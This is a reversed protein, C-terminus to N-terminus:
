ENYYGVLRAYREVLDADQNPADTWPEFWDQFQLSATDVGGYEDVTVKLRAAPGGGALTVYYVTDKIIDDGVEEEIRQQADYGDTIGDAQDDETPTDEGDAINMLHLLEEDFVGDYFDQAREEITKNNTTMCISRAGKCRSDAPM